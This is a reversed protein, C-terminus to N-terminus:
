DSRMRNDKTAMNLIASLERTLNRREYRALNAAVGHECRDSWSRHLALVAEALNQKDL